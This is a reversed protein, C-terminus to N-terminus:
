QADTIKRMVTLMTYMEGLEDLLDHEDETAMRYVKSDWEESPQEFPLWADTGDQLYRNELTSKIDEIAERVKDFGDQVDKKTFTDRLTKIGLQSAKHMIYKNREYVRTHVYEGNIQKLPPSKELSYVEYHNKGQFDKVPVLYLYQGTEAFKYFFNVDFPYWKYIGETPLAVGKLEGKTSVVKLTVMEKDDVVLKM